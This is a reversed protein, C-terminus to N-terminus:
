VVVRSLELRLLARYLMDFNLFYNCVARDGEGELMGPLSGELSQSLESAVSNFRMM